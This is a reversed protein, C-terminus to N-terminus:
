TASRACWRLAHLQANSFGTGVRGAYRLEDDQYAGLHLAGFGARSGKPLTYGVIVFDATRDARVKIWDGSRAGRYRSDAKKGVVGELGLGVVRQYLDEGTGGFHEVYRLPGTPPLVTQLLQKRETLPLSRLDHGL